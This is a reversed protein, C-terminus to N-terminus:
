DDECSVMVKAAMGQGIAIRSSGIMVLVPGSGQRRLMSVAVGPVFGMSSLRECVEAGGAIHDLTGHQGETLDSLSFLTPSAM